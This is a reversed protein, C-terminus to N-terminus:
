RRFNGASRVCEARPIRVDNSLVRIAFAVIVTMGARLIFIAKKARLNYTLLRFPAIETTTDLWIFDKGQPVATIM